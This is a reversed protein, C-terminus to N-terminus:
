KFHDVYLICKTLQGSHFFSVKQLSYITLITFGWFVRGSSFNCSLTFYVSSFLFLNLLDVATGKKIM